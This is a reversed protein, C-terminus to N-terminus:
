ELRATAELLPLGNEACTQDLCAFRVELRSKGTVQGGRLILLAFFFIGQCIKGQRGSQDHRQSLMLAERQQPVPALRAALGKRHLKLWAAGVSGARPVLGAWLHSSPPRRCM